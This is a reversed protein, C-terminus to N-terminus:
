WSSAYPGGYTPSNALSSCGSSSTEWSSASSSTSPSAVASLTASFWGSISWVDSPSAIWSSSALSASILDLDLHRRMHLCQGNPQHGGGTAKWIALPLRRHRGALWSISTLTGIQPNHSEPRLNQVRRSPSTFVVLVMKLDWLSIEFVLAKFTWVTATMVVWTTKAKNREAPLFATRPCAELFTQCRFEPTRCSKASHISDGTVDAVYRSPSALGSSGIRIGQLWM